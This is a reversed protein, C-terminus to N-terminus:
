YEEWSLGWSLFNGPYRWRSESCTCINEAMGMVHAPSSVPREGHEGVMLALETANPGDTPATRITQMGGGDIVKQDVLATWGSTSNLAAGRKESTPQTPARPDVNRNNLSPEM